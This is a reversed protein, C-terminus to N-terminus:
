RQGLQKRQSGDRDGGSATRKRTRPSHATHLCRNADVDLGGGVATEEENFVPAQTLADFELGPGLDADLGHALGVARPRCPDDRPPDFGDGAALEAAELDGRHVPIPGRRQGAMDRDQEASVVAGLDLDTGEVGSRRQVTLM